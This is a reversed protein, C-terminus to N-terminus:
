LGGGSGAATQGGGQGLAPALRRCAQTAAHFQPSKLDFGTPLAIGQSTPDPFSPVGHARICRAFALLQAEKQPSM